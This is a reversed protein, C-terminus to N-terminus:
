KGEGRNTSGLLEDILKEIILMKYFSSSQAYGFMPHYHMYECKFTLFIRTFIIGQGLSSLVCQFM